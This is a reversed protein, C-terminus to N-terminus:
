NSRFAECPDGNSPTDPGVIWRDYPLKQAVETIQAISLVEVNPSAMKMARPIGWDTRAHGNGTIVVVPGGTDSLAQLTVRAFHADRFRQAEVMRPLMESPLADCHVQAQLAERAAQEDQALDKELGYLKAEPGFVVDANRSVAARVDTKAAAAGYLVADTAAAFIPFYMSFAPWGSANWDLAKELKEENLRDIGSIAAIQSPSLMEFVVAKPVVHEIILAQNQHHTPNDHVEGVIIIDAALNESGIDLQSAGLPSAM